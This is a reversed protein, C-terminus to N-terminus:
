RRLQSKGSLSDRRYGVFQPKTPHQHHIAPYLAPLELLYMRNAWQHDTSTPHHPPESSLLTRDRPLPLSDVPCLALGEERAQTPKPSIGDTLHKKDWLQAPVLWLQLWQLQAERIASSFYILESCSALEATHNFTLVFSVKGSRKEPLWGLGLCPLFDLMSIQLLPLLPGCRAKRKPNKLCHGM